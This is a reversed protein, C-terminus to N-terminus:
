QTMEPLPWAKPTADKRMVSVNREPSQIMNGHGREKAGEKNASELISKHNKRM